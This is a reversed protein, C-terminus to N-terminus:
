DAATNLIETLNNLEEPTMGARKSPRGEPTFSRVEYVPPKGYWSALILRKAYGSETRGVIGLDKILEFKDGM